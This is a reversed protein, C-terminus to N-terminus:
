RRLHKRPRMAHHLIRVVIVRHGDFYYFIRHSGVSLSRIPKRRSSFPSGIEPYEALRSFTADFEAMYSEAVAAGFADRSYIDIQELDKRAERQLVIIQM